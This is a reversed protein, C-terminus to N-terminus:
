IDRKQEKPINIEFKAGGLTKSNKAVINGNHLEVIQKCLYLGLGLGISTSTGTTYKEFIIKKDFNTFGKGNDEILIKINNGSSKVIINLIPKNKNAFKLGNHLLNSIVQTFQVKDLDIFDIKKDFSINVVLNKDLKQLGEIEFLFLNELKIKEIYLHVKGIDYKEINFIVKVLDSIKFIQNKLLKLEKKIFNIDMKGDDIDDVISEVQLSASMIPTKIEHSAISIFEKQRNILNNYEITKKDVEKDLNITLYNIKSYIEIYMLHGSLFNVFDKVIKIEDTFYHEKFPKKGLEFLGIIDGINNRMPFVLYISNSLENKIGEINFKNKNEELFVIDNIFIENKINNNFYKLLESYNELSKNIHTHKVKFNSDSFIKLHQNLLKLDLIFPIQSKINNLQNLFVKYEKNLPLINIFFKYLIYFLTISFIIDVYTFNSSIGWLNNFDVYHSWRFKKIFFIFFSTILLSISFSFIENYRLSIDSFHYKNSTYLTLIIFPLIFLIMERQLLNIGFYPLITQFLVGFFLFFLFGYFINKLRIKNIFELKRFKNYFGLVILFSLLITLTQHFFIFSGYQEYYGLTSSDYYVGSVILDTFFYLYFLLIGFGLEHFNIVKKNINLGFYNIFRSFFYLGFISSVFAVKSIYILITEDNIAYFIFYFLYWIALFISFIFYYKGSINKLNRNIIIGSYLIFLISVFYLILYLNM